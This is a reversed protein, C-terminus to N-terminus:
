EFVIYAVQETTHRRESYLYWDEDIALRLQTPSVANTGYLVAWGGDTGDMGAQSVIATSASTLGSIPYTFPPKNQMGQITDAGLAAAYRRGDITGSGGEIVVYMLTEPVRGSRDEGTHRGVYLTSSSPPVISRSGRSWFISWDQTCIHNPAPCYSPPVGAAPSAVQGVVVPRSYGEPNLYAQRQGKWSGYHDSLTFGELKVAEMKVGHEAANYVGERVVMCYVNASFHDEDYAGYWPRGLGVEFSSGVSNRVRVIAPGNASLDYNPSCVVVMEDGYEYPLQVTTWQNTHALGKWLQLQPGSAPLLVSVEKSYIDNAPNDDTVKQSAQLTHSGGTMPTWDFQVTTSKGPELNGASQTGAPVSGPETLDQLTVSINEATKQGRNEITVTVLSTEGAIPNTPVSIGTVAVDIAPPAVEGEDITVNFRNLVLDIRNVITNTDSGAFLLGVPQKAGNNTVILSGSDGGASFTGPTVIIQDVFRAIKSCSEDYCVDVTGGITNVTGVTLGSTRGYKQVEIGLLQELNEDGLTQPAGYAPHLIRSPAGYGPLSHYLGTPTANGLQGPTSRAIAADINNAQNCILWFWFVTCFKIPEFDALSAIADDLTGGDYSGPQLIPDNINAQNINALVHNNSLVFVDTGDTVRAAITGATIAPHGVSIGTPVPLLWREATTCYTDGSSDCTPGRRAYFRGSVEAHVRLGELMEPIGHMRHRATFVKIIPENDPGLGIGSGVVDEIEMLRHGHRHHVFLANRIRDLRQKAKVSLQTIQLNGDNGGKAEDAAPAPGFALVIAVFLALLCGTGRFFSRKGM